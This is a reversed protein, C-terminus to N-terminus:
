RDIKDLEKQLIVSAEKNDLVKWRDVDPFREDYPLIECGLAVAEIATRGVAYVRRYEAMTDLLLDREMGHVLDVDSPFEIDQMKSKRGVFATWKTKPRIHRRVEELDISLPLYIPTGLHDVKEMTEPIGCVLILDDYKSLWDYNEPNLNNHIFVISHDEACREFQPVRNQVPINVTVWSRDTKVRPIINRIIEKSYYYAGNYRNLGSHKWRARYWPHDHDYIMM